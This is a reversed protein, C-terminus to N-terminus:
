ASEQLRARLARLGRSVRQRVVSPSCRLARALEEYEAEHLVRGRVATQQDQPLGDLAANGALEEIRSIAEDDLALRELRLERRASDEVRGRALSDALVHRAIGYLWGRPEGRSPDFARRGALARAFTEATLDAALDASGCRRLFVSLVFDEHRLYVQGFAEADGGLLEVDDRCEMLAMQDNKWCSASKHGLVHDTLAGVTATIRQQAGSSL